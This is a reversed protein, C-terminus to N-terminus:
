SKADTLLQRGSQGSGNDNEEPWYANYYEQNPMETGTRDDSGDDAWGMAPGPTIQFSQGNQKGKRVAQRAQELDDIGKQQKYRRILEQEVLSQQTIFLPLDSKFRRANM